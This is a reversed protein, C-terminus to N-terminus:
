KGLPYGAGYFYDQFYEDLALGSLPRWPPKYTTPTPAHAYATGETAPTRTCRRLLVTAMLRSQPQHLLLAGKNYSLRSSFIRSVSTTDNVWVSGGPQSFFNVSNLANRKWNYWAQESGLFEPSATLYTYVRRQIFTNGAEM